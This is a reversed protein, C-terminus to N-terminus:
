DIRARDRAQQLTEEVSRAKDLNKKYEKMVYDDSTPGPTRSVWNMYLFWGGVAIVIVVLLKKM